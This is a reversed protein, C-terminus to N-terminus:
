GVWRKWNKPTTTADPSIAYVEEIEEGQELLQIITAKLEEMGYARVTRDIDNPRLKMQINYRTLM